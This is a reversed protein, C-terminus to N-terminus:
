KAAKKKTKSQPGVGGNTTALAHGTERIHTFLKSRSDFGERCVNCREAAAVDNKKGRRARRGSGSGSNKVTDNSLEGDAASEQPSEVAKAQHAGEDAGAEDDNDSNVASAAAMKEEQKMRKKLKQRAKKSLGEEAGVSTNAGPKDDIHVDDIAERLDQEDQEGDIGEELGFQEDDLQMERQLKKVAQKHKKSREHNDWAAASQFIKDCAVCDFLAEGEEDEGAEDDDEDRDEEGSGVGQGKVHEGFSAESDEDSDGESAGNRAGGDGWADWSQQKFARAREEQERM